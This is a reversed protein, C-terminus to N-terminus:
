IKFLETCHDTTRATMIIGIIRKQLRFISDSLFINDRLDCYLSFLCLLDDKLIDWSLFQNVVTVMYYAQSLKPTIM